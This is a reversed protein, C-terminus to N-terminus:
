RPVYPVSGVQMAEIPIDKTKTPASHSLPSVVLRHESGSCCNM